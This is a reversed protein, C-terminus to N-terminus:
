GGQHDQTEGSLGVSNTTEPTTAAPMNGTRSNGYVVRLVFEKGGSTLDVNDTFLKHYRGLLALAAQADYLEVEINHTETDEGDKNSTMVVRDKVKKILHTLGLEKAKELDLYHAVGEITMFDGMDSRAMDTLRQIVEDAKMSKEDLRRKIEESINADTLLRHGTVRSGKEAYGARIAAQTANCDKLYEDIFRRRKNTVTM